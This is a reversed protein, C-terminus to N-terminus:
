TAGLISKLAQSGSSTFLWGLASCNLMVTVGFATQLSQKKSKHLLLKQAVLAGPWGGIFGLIHLTM